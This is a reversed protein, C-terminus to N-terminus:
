LTEHLLYNCTTFCIVIVHINEEEKRMVKKYIKGRQLFVM